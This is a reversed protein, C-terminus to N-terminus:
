TSTGADTTGNYVALCRQVVGTWGFKEIVRARAAEGLQSTRAEDDAVAGLAMRLEEPDRPSVIFGSINHEVVEPLSAVDTAIGPAGCAMGELLTQGLLEPIDSHNGYMDDYVSPLVVARATRYAEVLAPDDVNHEFTVLKGSALQHLDRLYRADPAPGIIRLPLDDPLARLLLDIGKHPLVRGVFLVERKRELMAKPSFKDTDVGGWIVSSWPKGDHGAISQSYESIHLHGHFWRDTSVYASVDWGGGGLDSCFVRKGCIRATAAAISSAVIHQQHCHVIRARAVEPLLGLAFPNARQGRVHWPRGIVRIRLDDVSEERAREGFTILSTPVVRAMHRALEFAYREAGGTIGDRNGFLAPIIHAVM